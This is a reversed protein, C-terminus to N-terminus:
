RAETSPTLNFYRQADLGTHIIRAPRDPDAGVLQDRTPASVISHSPWRARRKESTLMALAVPRVRKALRSYWTRGPSVGILEYQSPLTPWYSAFRYLVRDSAQGLWRQYRRPPNWMGWIFVIDPTFSLPRSSASINHTIGRRVNTFFTLSNRWPVLDM